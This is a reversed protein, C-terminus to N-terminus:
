RRARASRTSHLRRPAARSLRQRREPRLQLRRASADDTGILYTPLLPAGIAWLSLSLAVALGPAVGVAVSISEVQKSALANISVDQMASVNAGSDVHASTPNRMIGVDLGAGIGIFGSVTLGGAFGFAHASNHATINVAQTASPTALGTTKNVQVGTGLWAETTSDVLVLSAGGALDLIGPAALAGALVVTILLESSDAQVALGTFSGFPSGSAGDIVGGLSPGNALADVTASSDVWAKTTKLVVGLSLSLGVGIGGGTVTGIVTIALTHDEADIFVNGGATIHSGIDAFAHTDSKLVLVQVGGGVGVLGGMAFGASVTIIKQDDRAIVLVDQQAHVVAAAGITATTSLLGLTLAAGVTASIVASSGGVVLGIRFEDAGAAVLVSQPALAGAGWPDNLHAAAGVSATTTAVIVVLSGSVTAAVLGGAAGGLEATAVFDSNAATVSIGSVQKTHASASRQQTLAPDNTAPDAEPETTDSGSACSGGCNHPLTTSGLANQPQVQFNSGRLSSISSFDGAGSSSGSQSSAPASQSGTPASYSVDFTGDIVGEAGRRANATVHAAAGISAGTTKTLVIAGPSAGISAIGGALSGTIVTLITRENAAVVVNGEANVTTLALPPAAPITTALLSTATGTPLTWPLSPIGPVPLTGPSAVASTVQPVAGTVGPVVPLGAPDVPLAGIDARTIATVVYAGAAGAVGALGSTARAGEVSVIVEDSFAQVRVSGNSSVTALPAIYAETDKVIVGGDIAAGVSAAYSASGMMSLGLTFLHDLALVDVLQATSAGSIDPNITALTDIWARTVDVVALATATLNVAILFSAGGSLAVAYMGQFSVAQVVLGRVMTQTGDSAGTYAAVTGAQGDASVTAAAGVFALTTKVVSIISVSAGVSAILSAGAGGSILTIDGQDVASVVVNGHAHIAALPAIIARTQPAVVFVTAAGAVTAGAALTLAISFGLAVEKSTAADIIDTAANATGGLLTQTDKVLLGVNAAAGAGALLGGGAAGALADVLTTSTALVDIRQGAKPTVATALPCLLSGAGNLCAGPLVTAWTRATLVNLGVSGAIGAGLGAAAAGVQTVLTQPSTAIVAIQGPADLFALSGVLADVSTVLQNGGVAAGAGALLAGAAVGSRAQAVVPSIALVCIDPAVSTTLSALDDACSHDTTAAGGSGGASVFAAPAIIALTAIAGTNLALSGAGALVWDGAIGAAHADLFASPADAFSIGSLSIQIGLPGTDGVSPGTDQAAVMVPGASARVSALPAIAAINLSTIINIAVGLGIGVGAASASFGADSHVELWDKSTVWVSPASIAAGPGILADTARISANIALSAAAGITPLPVPLGVLADILSM